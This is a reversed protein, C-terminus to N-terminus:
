AVVRENIYKKVERLLEAPLLDAKLLVNKAGLAMAEKEMGDFQANSLLIVPGNPLESSEVNLRRLVGMGDLKPMLLDLLIVAYGGNRAKQLGEEGDQAVDVEFGKRTLIHHYMNRLAEDDEILLISVQAM